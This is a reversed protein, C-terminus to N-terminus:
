GLPFDLGSAPRGLLRCMAVAQGQHHYLHAFTRVIVRAPVLVAPRGGWMTMPRPTNLEDPSAADLYGRTRGEVEARWGELSPVDPYRDDRDEGDVVGHLVGVWYHEAGIGHALQLHLSPYGFGEHERRFDEPAFAACHELLRRLCTHGRAHLDALAEATYM